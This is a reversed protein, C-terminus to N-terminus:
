ALNFTAPDPGTRAGRDLASIADRQADTLRVDLVARNEELRSERTSRPIVVSGLDLHWRYVVQAATCEAEDAIQTIVPDEILNLRAALPSWDETVIGHAQHFARLEPQTLYPHLEIQNISPYEGFEEYVRELHEINFNCVGIARAKGRARLERMARWTELYRDRAPTPWHILYLDVYDTGLKALSTDLAKLTADYGQDSNWVKTTLFIEDRLVDTDALARGVGEENRYIMATDISRYGIRLAYEVLDSTIDDPVEWFGVGLQPMTVDRPGGTLTVTPQAM